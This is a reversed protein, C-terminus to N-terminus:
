MVFGEEVDFGAVGVGAVDDGGDAAEGAGEGDLADGELLELPEAEVLVLGVGDSPDSAHAGGDRGHVM